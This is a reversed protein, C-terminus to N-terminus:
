YMVEACDVELIIFPHLICSISFSISNCEACICDMSETLDASILSAIELMIILFILLDSSYKISFQLRQPQRSGGTACDCLNVGAESVSFVLQVVNINMISEEYFLLAPLKLVSPPNTNRTM